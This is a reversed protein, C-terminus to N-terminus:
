FFNNINDSNKRPRGRTKVVEKVEEKVENIEDKGDVINEIKSLISNQFTLYKKKIINSKYDRHRVM